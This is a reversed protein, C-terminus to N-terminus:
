NVDHTFRMRQKILLHIAISKEGGMTVDGFLHPQVM